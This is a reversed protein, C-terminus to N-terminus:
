AIQGGDVPISTGNTFAAADSLLYVVTAAVENPRAMRGTPNAQEVAHLFEVQSPGGENQKDNAIRWMMRSDVASPCVENCTIGHEAYDLAVSKTLGSLAHKSVNYSVNRTSGRLSYISGINVIRGWRQEVMHPLCARILRFAGVLNIEMHERLESETTDHVLNKAESIAASNILIDFIMPCPLASSRLDLRMPHAGTSRSIRSAEDENTAYQFTTEYGAEVLQRVIAEGISGTGGTVLANKQAM